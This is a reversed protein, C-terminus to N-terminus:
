AIWEEIQEYYTSEIFKRKAQALDHSVARLDFGHRKYYITYIPEGIDDLKKAVKAVRGYLSIEKQFENEMRSVEKKTFKIEAQIERM